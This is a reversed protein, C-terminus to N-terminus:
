KVAFNGFVKEAPCEFQKLALGVYVIHGDQRLLHWACLLLARPSVGRLVAGAARGACSSFCQPIRCSEAKYSLHGIDHLGSANFCTGSNASSSSSSVATSAPCTSSFVNAGRCRM